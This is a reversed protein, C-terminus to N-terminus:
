GNLCGILDLSSKCNVPGKPWEVIGVDKQWWVGILRGGTVSHSPTVCTRARFILINQWHCVGCLFLSGVRGKAEYQGVAKRKELTKVQQTCNSEGYSNQPFNLSAKKKPLKLTKKWLEKFLIRLNGWCVSVSVSLSLVYFRFLIILALESWQHCVASVLRAQKTKGLKIITSTLAQTSHCALHTWIWISASQLM